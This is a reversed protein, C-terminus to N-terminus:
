PVRKTAERLANEPWGFQSGIKDRTSISHKRFRKSQGNTSTLLRVFKRRRAKFLRKRLSGSYVKKFPLNQTEPRM